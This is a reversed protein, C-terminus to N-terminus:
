NTRRIRKSNKKDDTQTHRKRTGISRNDSNKSIITFFLCDFYFALNCLTKVQRDDTTPVKNLILDVDFNNVLSNPNTSNNSTTNIVAVTANSRRDTAPVQSASRKISSRGNTNKNQSTNSTSDNNHSFRFMQRSSHTPQQQQQQSQVQTQTLSTSLQQPPILPQVTSPTLQVPSSSM